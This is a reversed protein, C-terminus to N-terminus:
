RGSGEGHEALLRALERDLDDPTWDELPRQTVTQEVHEVAEGFVRTLFADAARWDGAEGATSDRRRDRARPPVGRGDKASHKSLRASGREARKRCLESVIHSLM